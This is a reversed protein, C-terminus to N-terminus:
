AAYKVAALMKFSRFNGNIKLLPFDVTSFALLHLVTYMFIFVIYIKRIM